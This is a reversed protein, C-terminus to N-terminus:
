KAPVYTVQEFGADRAVQIAAVAFGVPVDDYVKVFVGAGKPLPAIAEALSARERLVRHGVQYAPASDIVRVDINQTQFDGVSGAAGPSQTQLGTSLRTERDELMTAVMFYFLLLFSVDIMAALNITIRDYRRRTPPVRIRM